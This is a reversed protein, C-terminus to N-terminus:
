HILGLTSSNLVFHEFIGFPRVLLSNNPSLWEYLHVVPHYRQSSRIAICMNEVRPLIVSMPGRGWKKGNWRESSKPHMRSVCRDSSFSRLLDKCLHFFLLGPNSQHNSSRSSWPRMDIEWNVHAYQTRHSIVFISISWILSGFFRPRAARSCSIAFVDHSFPISGGPWFSRLNGM